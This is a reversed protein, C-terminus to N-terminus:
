AARSNLSRSEQTRSSLVPEDVPKEFELANCRRARVFPVEQLLRTGSKAWNMAFDNLDTLLEGTAIRSKELDDRDLKRDLYIKPGYVVRVRSFPLPMAFKDWTNFRFPRDYGVGVLVLPMQLWSALFLCGLSM